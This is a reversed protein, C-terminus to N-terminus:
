KNVGAERLSSKARELFAIASTTNGQQLQYLASQISNWANPLHLGQVKTIPPKM